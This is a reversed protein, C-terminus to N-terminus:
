GREWQRPELTPSLEVHRDFDAVSEPIRGLRFNERGRLFYAQSHKPDQQLLQTLHAVADESRGDNVAEMAKVFLEDVGQACALAITGQWLGIMIPVIQIAKHM